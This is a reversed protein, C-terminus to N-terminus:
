KKKAPKHSLVLAGQPIRWDRGVLVGSMQRSRLMRRVNEESCELKAAIDRVPVHKELSCRKGKM